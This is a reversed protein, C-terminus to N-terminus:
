LWHNVLAPLPWCLHNITNTLKRQYASAFRLAHSRTKHIDNSLQSLPEPLILRLVGPLGHVCAYWRLRLLLSRLVPLMRLIRRLWLM